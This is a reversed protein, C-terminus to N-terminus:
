CKIPGNKSIHSKLISHIKLIVNFSVRLIAKAPEVLVFFLFKFAINYVPGYKHGM